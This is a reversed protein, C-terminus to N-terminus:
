QPLFAEDYEEVTMTDLLNICVDMLVTPEKGLALYTAMCDEISAHETACGALTPALCLMAVSLTLRGFKM